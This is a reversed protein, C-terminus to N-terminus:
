YQSRGRSFQSLLSRGLAGQETLILCVPMFVRLFQLFQASHGNLFVVCTNIKCNCETKRPFDTNLSSFSPMLTFAYFDDPPIRCFTNKFIIAVKNLFIGKCTSGQSNQLINLSVQKTSFRRIAAEPHLISNRASKTICNVWVVMFIAITTKKTLFSSILKMRHGFVVGAKEKKKKKKFFRTKQSYM